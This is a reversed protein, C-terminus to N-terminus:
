IDYPQSSPSTDKKTWTDIPIIWELDGTIKYNGTGQWDDWYNSKWSNFSLLTQIFSSHIYNEIFNNYFIKTFSSYEIYIGIQYSEIINNLFLDNSSSDYISIGQNNKEIHNWYINNHSSSNIQIGITNDSIQNEHINNDEANSLLIGIDNDSIINEDYIENREANNLYLGINNETILNGDFIDNETSDEIHVATDSNTIINWYISNASSQQILFGETNEVLSNAYFINNRSNRDIHIGIENHQIINESIITDTSDRLYIARSTSQEIKNKSFVNTNSFEYIVANYNNELITDTIRNNNSNISIGAYLPDKGSNKITFGSINVNNSSIQIVTGANRADIFTTNKNEGIINLSKDITLTEYYPSSDDLVYITDGPLAVNIAAQITDYHYPENGGVYIINSYTNAAFQHPSVLSSSHYISISKVETIPLNIVILLCLLIICTTYRHKTM